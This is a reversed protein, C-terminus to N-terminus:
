RSSFASHAPTTEPPAAPEPRRTRRRIAAAAPITSLAGVAALTWGLAHRRGKRLREALLLGIGAGLIGRTAAIFALEPVSVKLQKM